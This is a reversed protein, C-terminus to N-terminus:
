DGDEREGVHARVWFLFVEAVAHRLLEDVRQGLQVVQSNHCPRRRKLELSLGQIQALDSPLEAHRCHEFSADALRTVAEADRGLEDTDSVPIV